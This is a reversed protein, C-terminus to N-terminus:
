FHTLAQAPVPVPTGGHRSARCPVTEGGYHRAQTGSLCPPVLLCPVAPWRATGHRHRARAMGHRAAWKSFILCQHCLVLCIFAGLMRSQRTWVTGLLTVLRERLDKAGM